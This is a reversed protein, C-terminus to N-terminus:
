LNKVINAFVNNMNSPENNIEEDNIFDNLRKEFDNPMYVSGSWSYGIRGVRGMIQFLTNMSCERYFDETVFVRSLPLNVGHTMSEDVVVFSLKEDSAMSYVLNNYVDSLMHADNSIIGVGAYLLLLIDDPVNINIVNINELKNNMRINSMNINKINGVYKKIHDITNIQCSDAFSFKPVHDDNFKEKTFEEKKVSKEIKEMKENYNKLDSLYKYYMNSASINTNKIETLIDKFNNIAFDIPHKTVIMNMRLYKHANKTCINSFAIRENINTSIIKNSDQCINSKILIKFINVCYEKVKDLSLNNIDEFFVNLDPINIKDHLMEWLEKAVNITLLRGLFPNKQVKSIIKELKNKLTDNDYNLINHIDIGPIIVKGDYNLIECGIYIEDSYIEKILIKNKHMDKLYNVIYNMESLEPMTASSLITHKPAVTLLRMNLELSKSLIDDAGITPEDLFLWHKNKNDKIIHYATNPDAIIMTRTTDNTNFHNVIRVVDNNMYAIAFRVDGNYAIKAVDKRVTDVNCCFILEYKEHKTSLKKNLESVINGVCVVSSITKGSGLMAKLSIVFGNDINNQIVNILEKQSNRIRIEQNPMALDYKTEILLKPYNFYIDINRFMINDKNMHDKIKNGWDTMKSLLTKSIKNNINDNTNNNTNEYITKGTYDKMINIFKFIAVYIEYFEEIKKKKNKQSNKILFDACYILTIGKLEIYINNEIGFTYRMQTDKMFSLINDIVKIVKDYSAKMIIEDKKNKCKPTFKTNKNGDLFPFKHEIALYMDECILINTNKTKNTVTANNVTNNITYSTLANIVNKTFPSVSQEIIEWDDRSFKKDLDSFM